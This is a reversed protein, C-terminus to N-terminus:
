LKVFKLICGRGIFGVLKKSLREMKLGIKWLIPIPFLTFDFYAQDIEKLGRKLAARSLIFPVHVRAKPPNKEKRVMKLIKPWISSIKFITELFGLPTLANTVTVFAVGNKKLVRSIEALAKNDGNLYEIVGACVVINFADNAFPLNEIDAVILPPKGMGFSLCIERAKDLMKRSIDIGVAKYGKKVFDILMLGPGCGIDLATGEGEDIMNVIYKHRIYLTPYKGKIALYKENTYVTAKEDFFRKSLAKADSMTKVDIERAVNNRNPLM